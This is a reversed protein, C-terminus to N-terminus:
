PSFTAPIQSYRLPLYDAGGRTILPETPGTPHLSVLRVCEPDAELLGVPEFVLGAYVQLGRFRGAAAGIADCVTTPLGCGPGVFVRGSRPLAAVADDVTVIQM